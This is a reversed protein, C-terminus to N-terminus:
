ELRSPLIGSYQVKDEVTPYSLFDFINFVVFISPSKMLGVNSKESFFSRKLYEQSFFTGKMGIVFVSSIVQPLARATFKVSLVAGGNL